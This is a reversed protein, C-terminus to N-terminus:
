RLLFRLVRGLLPLLGLSVLLFLGVRPYNLQRWRVTRAALRVPVVEASALRQVEIIAPAFDDLTWTRM